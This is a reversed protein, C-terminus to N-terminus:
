LLHSIFIGNREKGIEDKMGKKSKRRGWILFKNSTRFYYKFFLFASVKLNHIDLSLTEWLQIPTQTGTSDLIKEEGCWGSRHQPGGLRRGLPSRSSKGRPYLPRPTFRVVWRWITGLHLFHPDIFGSGGVGEHRLAQNTIYLFLVVM